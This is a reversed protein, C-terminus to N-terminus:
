ENLAELLLFTAFEISELTEYKLRGNLKDVLNM